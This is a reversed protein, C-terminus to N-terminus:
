FPRLGDPFYPGPLLSGVPTAHVFRVRDLGYNIGMVVDKIKLTEFCFKSALSLVLFGHAIPKKYPSDKAAREPNVHIWQNDETTRGFSDIMAQTITMWESLGLEKGVYQQLDALHALQTSHASENMPDATM